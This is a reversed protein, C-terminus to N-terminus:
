RPLRLIVDMARRFHGNMGFCPGDSRGPGRTSFCPGGEGGRGGEGKWPLAVGAGGLGLWLRPELSLIVGHFECALFCCSCM